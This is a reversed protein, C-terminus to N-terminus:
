IQRAHVVLAQAIWVFELLMWSGQLVPQKHVIMEMLSEEM